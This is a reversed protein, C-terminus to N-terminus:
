ITGALLDDEFQKIGSMTAPYASTDPFDLAKVHRWLAQLLGEVRRMEDDNFKMDLINIRGRQDTEVFALKAGVVKYNAYTRSREVLLKYAYLQQKYRYLKPINEWRDYSSGTKYDVVVITKNVTDIELRDIKGALHADGVFVNENRFNIEARDIPKYAKFVSLFATLAQVGREHELKFDTPMLYKAELNEKFITLTKSLEPIRGTETVAYQLSELTEHIANGFQMATGPAETFRLITSFFFRQPGAYELNTFANLHTPSLQYNELRDELLSKLSTDALGDLHRSRWDLRLTDIHPPVSEDLFIEQFTEPLMLAKFRDTEVEQEDFYKLRKTLKGAYDSRYSTLHLGVRARTLAVFLLRLREDETTGAYRIPALNAPLTLKNSSGRNSGGWVDDQLSPLFVHEFELGKAKFVTMLQVANADQNYPSSNLIPTEAAEYENIFEVFDGLKLIHESTDQYARLKARLVTINSLTEYFLEPHKTQNETSLYFDKLPSGAQPLDAENTDVLENGILYDLMTELSTTKIKHALTLFLLAVHRFTKGDELLAQSWSIRRDKSETLWSINWISSTPLQWFDFSLVEPWLSNAAGDNKQSLAIVLQSMAILQSVIPAELINERKEYRVPIGRANLHATLPELHKHRPALVAIERPATGQDILKKIEAAIWDYQALPSLFDQRRIHAKGLGPNSAVLEKNITEFNDQLRAEIQNAVNSATLLIEPVSRYNEKLSIVKVDRYMKYFDLMNSYEAGQFAYIAQDDDGVAMVNPRAENVPNNTLLTVLQLQAANTDQFEDLLIYLYQEQLTFRLDDHEKLAGIARTIMDDFDYQGRAALGAQYAELVDALANIRANELEGDFVLQNDENKVLWSNKWATLPKSSNTESAMTLATELSAAASNALSGFRSIATAKEAQQQCAELLQSFPEVAKTYTGPMRAFNKFIEVAQKNVNTIFNANERAVIRLDEPSLLGRKVESITALLDGLHHRTQKLPNSYSMGEVIASVIQHKGLDDIASELRYETFYQPYRRLIDSGLAHYTSITVDYASQGIFRSLRERMNLAGSETFTLCLINQPLTDTKTLINAVRASLLQTKGTGPGAIVLLPGDITDVAQKQAANLQNYARDFATSNGQKM